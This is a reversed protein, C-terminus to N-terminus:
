RQVYLAWEISGAGAPVGPCPYISIVTLAITDDFVVFCLVSVFLLIGSLTCLWRSGIRDSLTGAVPGTVMILLLPALLLLGTFGASYGKVLELYMPILYIIGSIVLRNLMAAGLSISVAPIKLLGFPILPEPM